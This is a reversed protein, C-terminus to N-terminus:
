DIVVYKRTVPWQSVVVGFPRAIVIHKISSSGRMGGPGGRKARHFAKGSHCTM